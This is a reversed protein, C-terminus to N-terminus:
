EAGRTPGHLRELFARADGREPAIRLVQEVAARAAELQGQRELIGALLLKSDPDEPAAAVAMEAYRQAAELLEHALSSVAAQRAYEVTPSLEAADSFARLATRSDAEKSARLGQDWAARAKLSALEKLAAEAAARLEMDEPDYSSALQLDAAAQTLMGRAIAARGSQSLQEVRRRREEVGAFGLRKVDVPSAVVRRSKRGPATGKAAEALTSEIIRQVPPPVDLFLVGAGPLCGPKATVRRMVKAQLPIAKGQLVALELVVKTGVAPPDSWELFAGSRSVDTAFMRVSTPNGPFSVRAELALRHIRTERRGTTPKSVGDDRPAPPMLAAASGAIAGIARPTVVAPAERAAPAAGAPPDAVPAAPTESAASPVREPAPSASAHEPPPPPTPLPAGALVYQPEPPPPAFSPEPPDPVHVVISQASLPPLVPPPAEPQPLSSEQSPADEGSPTDYPLPAEIELTGWEPPPEASASAEALPDTPAAGGAGPGELLLLVHRCTERLVASVGEKAVLMMLFERAAHGQAEVLAAAAAYKAEEDRGNELEERLASVAVDGGLAGLSTLLEEREATDTAECLRRALVSALGEDKMEFLLAQALVRIRAESELALEQLRPAVLAARDGVRELTVRKVLPNPNALLALLIPRSEDSGLADLIFLIEEAVVLSAKGAVAAVGAGEPSRSAILNALSRRVAPERVDQLLELLVEVAGPGLRALLLAAEASGAPRELVKVLPALAERAEMVTRIMQQVAERRRAVPHKRCVDEARDVAAILEGVNKDALFAVASACLRVLHREEEGALALRVFAEIAHAAATDTWESTLWASIESQAEVSLPAYEPAPAGGATGARPGPLDRVERHALAQVVERLSSNRVDEAAECDFRINACASERLATTPTDRAGDADLAHNWAQLFGVIESELATSAIRISRLGDRRIPEVLRAVGDARLLPIGEHLLGEPAVELRLSGYEGLFALVRSSFATALGTTLEGRRGAALGHEFVVGIEGAAERKRDPLASVQHPGAISGGAQGAPEGAKGRREM